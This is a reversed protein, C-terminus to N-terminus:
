SLVTTARTKEGSMVVTWAFEAGSSNDALSTIFYPHTSYTSSWRSMDRNQTPCLRKLLGMSKDFNSKLLVLGVCSGRYTKMLYSLSM